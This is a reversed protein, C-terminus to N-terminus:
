GNLTNMFRNTGTSETTLANTYQSTNAQLSEQILTLDNIMSTYRQTFDNLMMDRFAQAGQSQWVPASDAITAGVNNRASTLAAVADEVAKVAATMGAVDTQTGNNGAM